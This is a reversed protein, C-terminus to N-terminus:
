TLLTPAFRISYGAFRRMIGRERGSLTTAKSEQPRYPYGWRHREGKGGQQRSNGVRTSRSPILTARTYQQESSWSLVGYM